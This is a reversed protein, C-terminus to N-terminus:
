EWQSKSIIMMMGSLHTHKDDVVYMYWHSIKMEFALCAFPMIIAVDFWVSRQFKLKLKPM